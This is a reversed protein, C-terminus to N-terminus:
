SSLVKSLDKHIVNLEYTDTKDDKFYAYCGIPIGAYKQHKLHKYKDAFAATALARNKFNFSQIEFHSKTIMSATSENCSADTTISPILKLKYKNEIVNKIKSLEKLIAEYVIDYKSFNHSTFILTQGSTIKSNPDYKKLISALKTYVQKNLTNKNQNSIEQKSEYDISLCISYTKILDFRSDYNEKLQKLEKQQIKAQKINEAQILNSETKNSIYQFFLVAFTTGFLMFSTNLFIDKSTNNPNLLCALPEFLGKFQNYFFDDSISGLWFLFYGVSSAILFILTANLIKKIGSFKERVDLEYSEFCKNDMM